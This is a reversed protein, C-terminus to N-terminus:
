KSTYYMFKGEGIELGKQELSYYYYCYYYLTAFKFIRFIGM